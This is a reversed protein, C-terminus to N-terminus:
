EALAGSREIPIEILHAPGVTERAPGPQAVDEHGLQRGIDRRPRSGSQSKDPLDHQHDFQESAGGADTICDRDIELKEVYRAYKAIRQGEGEQHKGNLEEHELGQFGMDSAPTGDSNSSRM